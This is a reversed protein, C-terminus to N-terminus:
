KPAQHFSFKNTTKLREMVCQTWQYHNTQLCTRFKMKCCAIYFMYDKCFSHVTVDTKNTLPCTWFTSLSYDETCWQGTPSTRAKPPSIKITSLPRFLTRLSMVEFGNLFPKQPVLEMHRLVKERTKPACDGAVAQQSECELVCVYM